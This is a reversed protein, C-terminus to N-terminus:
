LQKLIEEELFHLPQMGKFEKIAKGEQFLILTPVGSIRYFTATAKNDDVNLKLVKLKKSLDRSLNELIPLQMKCPSCWEAIFAVLTTGKSIEQFFDLDVTERINDQSAVM